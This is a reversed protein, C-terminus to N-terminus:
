PYSYSCYYSTSWTNSSRGYNVRSERELMSLFERMRRSAVTLDKIQAALHNLGYIDAELNM